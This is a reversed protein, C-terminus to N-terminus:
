PMKLVIPPLVSYTIRQSSGFAISLNSRPSFTISPYFRIATGLLRREM